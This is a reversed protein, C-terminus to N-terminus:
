QVLRLQKELVIRKKVYGYENLAREWGLRGIAKMKTCGESLAHDELISILGLWDKMTEGGCAKILYATGNRGPELETLVAAKIKKGEVVVWLLSLEKELSDKLESLPVDGHKVAEAFYHEVLPWFAANLQPAVCAGYTETVGIGGDGNRM